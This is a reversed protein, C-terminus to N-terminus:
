IVESAFNMTRKRLFITALRFFSYEWSNLSKNMTNMGFPAFALTNKGSFGDTNKVTPIVIRLNAVERIKDIDVTFYNECKM